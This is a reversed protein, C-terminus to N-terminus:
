TSSLSVPRCLKPFEFVHRAHWYRFDINIGEILLNEDLDVRLSRSPIISELQLPLFVNYEIYTM